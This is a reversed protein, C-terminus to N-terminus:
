TVAMFHDCNGAVDIVIFERGWPQDAVPTIVTGDVTRDARLRRSRDAHFEDPGRVCLWAMTNPM